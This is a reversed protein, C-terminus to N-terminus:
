NASCFIVLEIFHSNVAKSPHNKLVEWFIQVVSTTELSEYVWPLCNTSDYIPWDYIPWCSYCYIRLLVM